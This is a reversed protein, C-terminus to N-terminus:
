LGFSKLIKSFEESRSFGELVEERSTGAALRGLWDSKGAPDSARDMFTQYLTEVFDENSTKKNIYEESFFFLKATSEPTEEGRAIRGIWDSLGQPEANRGLAVTYMRSVFSRVQEPDQPVPVFQSQNTPDYKSIGSGNLTYFTMSGDVESVYWVLNGKYLIPQCDSLMVGDCSQVQSINGQADYHVYCVGNNVMSDRWLVYGGEDGTPALVPTMGTVAPNTWRVVSEEAFSNKPVYSIHIDRICLEGSPSYNYAAIYGSSTEAVGGISANTANEGIEGPFRILNVVSVGEQGAGVTFANGGAKEAYRMLVASRPYGDGHDLTIINRDQDVLLFQNFSHSVYGYNNPSIDYRWDTIRTDIERVSFTLNAQHNLGDYPSKYMEHCTHVYLM